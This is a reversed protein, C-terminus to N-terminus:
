QLVRYVRAAPYNDIVLELRNKDHAALHFLQNFNSNWLPMPVLGLSSRGDPKQMVMLVFQSNQNFKKVATQKGNTVQVMATLVKKGDLTGHNLDLLGHNCQLKNKGTNQCQLPIYNYGRLVNVPPAIDNEIDHLGLKAITGSWGQMQNTLVLYISRDPMEASKIAQNLAGLSSANRYIGDEGQSTAFKTIQILEGQQPSMFGRAILHTRPGRQSGGDHYTAMGSKFRAMYGYDWWTAIIGPKEQNLDRMQSFTEVTPRDFSVRPMYNLMSASATGLLMLAAVLLVSGEPAFSKGGDSKKRAFIQAVYRIISLGLWAAGFWVFPAAFFAFRRGAFVSLMGILFFPLFMVGKSPKAIMFIVFGVFGIIGILPSSTMVVLTEILDIRSLETITTFTNPFSLAVDYIEKVQAGLRVGTLNYVVDMIFPFVTAIYFIPNIVLIIVASALAARKLDRQHTYVGLGALLPLIIVFPSKLYWWFFALLALATLLAYGVMRALNRERAVLLILSLCLALFFIVLQDTDIRGISSRILYTSSLGFGTGAIAGEAPYGAAWFMLGVMVASLFATVPIMANAATFLDGEYFWSAIHHIMVSLLPLDQASKDQYEELDFTEELKTRFEITQNPYVRSTEFDQGMVNRGYDDAYNLFYAADTTSANPSEDAYFINPNAQWHEWQSQRTEYNIMGGMLILVIAAVIYRWDQSSSLFQHTMVRQHWNQLKTLFAM